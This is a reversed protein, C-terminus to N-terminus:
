AAKDSGINPSTFQDTYTHIEEKLKFDYLITNLLWLINPIAFMNDFQHIPNQGEQHPILFCMIYISVCVCVCVCHLLSLCM